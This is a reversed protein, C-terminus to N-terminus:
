IQLDHSIDSIGPLRDAMPTQITMMTHLMNSNMAKKGEEDRWVTIRFSCLAEIYM